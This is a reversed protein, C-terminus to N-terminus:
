IFIGVEYFIKIDLQCQIIRLADDDNAKEKKKKRKLTPFFIVGNAEWRPGHATSKPNM